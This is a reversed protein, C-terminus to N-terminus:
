THTAFTYKRVLYSNNVAFVLKESRQLAANCGKYPWSASRQPRPYTMIAAVTMKRRPLPKHPPEVVMFISMQDLATWPIPAPPMLM